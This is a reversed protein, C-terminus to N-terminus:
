DLKKAFTYIGLGSNIKGICDNIDSNKYLNCDDDLYDFNVLELNKVVCELKMVTLPHFVRHANFHVQDEKSIGFSIYLTGGPELCNILNSVGQEFGNIDIPDSYRGLGFHELSHLCSLSDTKISNINDMFDHRKFEINEHESTLPRIDLVEIKRFSAVHAVFGDIRSAVDVHKRPNAKFVYNAILLDQHFYQSSANGSDEDYDTLIPFFHTIKGGQRKWARLDKFYNPLFRFFKITKLPSIGMMELVHYINRLWIMRKIKKLIGKNKLM